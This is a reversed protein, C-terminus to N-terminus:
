RTPAARASGKAHLTLRGLGAGDVTVAVRADGHRDVSCTTVRAGNRAAVVRAARCPLPVNDAGARAAALAALDAAAGARHRVTAAQGVLVAATAALLVLAFAGLVFVTGAGREATARDVGSSRSVAWGWRSVAWGWRSVAWGWRSVARGSRSM